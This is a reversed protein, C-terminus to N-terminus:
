GTKNRSLMRWMAYKVWIMPYVNRIKRNSTKELMKISTVIHIKYKGMAQPKYEREPSTAQLWPCIKLIETLWHYYTLSDQKKSHRACSWVSVLGCLMWLSVSPCAPSSFVMLGHRHRSINYCYVDCAPFIFDRDASRNCKALIVTCTKKHDPSRSPKKNEKNVLM